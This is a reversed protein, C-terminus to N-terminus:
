HEGALTQFSLMWDAHIETARTRGEEIAIAAPLM